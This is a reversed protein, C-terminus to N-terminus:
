REVTAMGLLTGFFFLKEQELQSGANPNLTFCDIFDGYNNVNNETPVLLGLASSMLESCINSLVERRPGGADAAGEGTLEVSFYQQMFVLPAQKMM